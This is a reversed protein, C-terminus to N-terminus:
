AFKNIEDMFRKFFIKMFEHRAIAIRRGEQTLMRDKIKSLKLKFERYATDEKTYSYTGRLDVDANHLKAGIEGAFQFARAIGVAGISDLKDSDFLVKAELTEPRCDGRFRHSRISHIINSKQDNTVPYHELIKLSLEAGAQAHCINGSSEDQIQRGIDHLYAAIKLVELDAKEIHGIHVCMNYVRITHDWGHSGRSNLFLKM